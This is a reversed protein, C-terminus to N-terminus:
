DPVEEVKVLPDGCWPYLSLIKMGTEKEVWAELELLIPCITDIEEDLAFALGSVNWQCNKSQSFILMIRDKLERKEEETMENM